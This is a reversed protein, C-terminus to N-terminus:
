GLEEYTINENTYICIRAAIIMAKEVIERAPLKTNEVLAQAAAKAFMGGSGIAAIENDPEIV